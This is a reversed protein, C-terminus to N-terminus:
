VVLIKQTRWDSDNHKLKQVKIKVNFAGASELDNMIITVIDRRHLFQTPQSAVDLYDEWNGGVIDDMQDQLGNKNVLDILNSYEGKKITM